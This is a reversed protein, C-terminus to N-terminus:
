MDADAKENDKTDVVVVNADEKKTSADIVGMKKNEQMAVEEAKARVLEQEYEKKALEIREQQWAIGKYWVDESGFHQSIMMKCWRTIVTPHINFLVPNKQVLLTSFIRGAMSRITFQADPALRKNFWHELAAYTMTVGIMTSCDNILQGRAVEPPIGMSRLKNYHTTSSECGKIWEAYFENDEKLTGYEDDTVFGAFQSAENVVKKSNWKDMVPLCFGVGKRNYDCYRQSEQSYSCDVRHRILQHTCARDTTAIFSLAYGIAEDMVLDCKLREEPIDNLKINTTTDIDATLKQLIEPMTAPVMMLADVWSVIDQFFLPWHKYLEKLLSLHLVGASFVNQKFSGELGKAVVTRWARINGVSCRWMVPGQISPNVKIFRDWWETIFRKKSYSSCGDWMSQPTLGTSKLVGSYDGEGPFFVSIYYHELISGHDHNICFNILNAFSNIGIKDESRYCIRAFREIKKNADHEGCIDEHRPIIVFNMEESM